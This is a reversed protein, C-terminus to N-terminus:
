RAQILVNSQDVRVNFGAAASLGNMAAINVGNGVVSSAANVINVGRAARQADNALIVENKANVTLDGGGLLIYEAQANTLQLVPASKITTSSETATKDSGSSECSGGYVGCGAGSHDYSLKPLEVVLPSETRVHGNAEGLAVPGIKLVTGKVDAEVSPSFSIKAPDVQLHHEGSGAGGAGAHMTQGLVEVKTDVKANSILDRTAKAATDVHSASATYSGLSASRAQSQGIANQQDFQFTSNAILPVLGNAAQGALRGAWVNVGNGVISEAANTINVGRAEEQAKDTLHVLGSNSLNITAPGTAIVGGSAIALGPTPVPRPDGIQTRTAQLGTAFAQGAVAAATDERLDAKIEGGAVRALARDSLEQGWAPAALAAAVALTMARYKM